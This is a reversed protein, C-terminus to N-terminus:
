WLATAAPVYYTVGNSKIAITKTASFNAPTTAATAGYNVSLLGTGKTVVRVDINTDTGEANLAPPSGAIAPTTTLMNAASATYRIKFGPISFSGDANGDWNLQIINGDTLLRSRVSSASQDTMIYGPVFSSVEFSGGAGTNGSTLLFNSSGKLQWTAGINADPGQATYTPTTGTAGISKAIANLVDTAGTASIITNASTATNSVSGAVNGDFSARIDVNTITGALKVGNGTHGDIRGGLAQLTTITGANGSANIGNGANTDLNGGIVAIRRINGTAATVITLADGGGGNAALILGDTEFDVLLGGAAINIAIANAHNQINSYGTIKVETAATIIVATHPLKGGYASSVNGRFNTCLLRGGNTTVVSCASTIKASNFAGNFADFNAFKVTGSHTIFNFYDQIWCNTFVTSLGSAQTFFSGATAASANFQIGDFENGDALVIGVGTSATCKLGTTREGGGQWRIGPYTTLTSFLYTAGPRLLIVGGNSGNAANIANLTRQLAATDDTANNGVAGFQEPRVFYSLAGQVTQAVAGTGSQTFGQYTQIIWQAVKTLTTQFLGAGLTAPLEEAGTLTGIDTATGAELAAIDTVVGISDAASLPNTM